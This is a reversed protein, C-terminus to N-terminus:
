TTLPTKMTLIIRGELEFIGRTDFATKLIKIKEEEGLPRLGRILM